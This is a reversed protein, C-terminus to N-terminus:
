LKEKLFRCSLWKALLDVISTASKIGDPDGEIFGAPNFVQGRLSDVIVALPVGRQLAKSIVVALANLLGREVSGMRDFTLFVEGPTNDEYFGVTVYGELNGLRLKRTVSPREPPM